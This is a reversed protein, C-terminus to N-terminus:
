STKSFKSDIVFSDKFDIYGFDNNMTTLLEVRSLIINCHPLAHTGKMDGKLLCKYIEKTSIILKDISSFDIEKETPNEVIEKLELETYWNQVM